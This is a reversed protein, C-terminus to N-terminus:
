PTGGAAAEVLRFASVELTVNLVKQGALTQTKVKANRIKLPYRSTEVEHLFEVLQQLSLKSLEVGYTKDELTGETTTGKERVGQLQASIGVKQTAKEMFSPLDTTANKRLQDEITTIQDAADLQEAALLTVLSLTEEQAEVRSQLDGLQSRGVWLLGGVVAVYGFVVLGVFLKRDRATMAAVMDGFRGRLTEVIRSM